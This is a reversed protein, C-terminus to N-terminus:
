KVYFKFQESHTCLGLRYQLDEASLFTATVDMSDHQMRVFIM